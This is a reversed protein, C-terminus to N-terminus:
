NLFLGQAQKQVGEKKETGRHKLDGTERQAEANRRHVVEEPAVLLTV